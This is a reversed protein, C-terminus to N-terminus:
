QPERADSTRQVVAGAQRVGVVGLVFRVLPSKGFQQQISNAKAYRGNSVIRDTGLATSERKRHRKKKMRYFM